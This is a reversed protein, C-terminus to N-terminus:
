ETSSPPIDNPETAKIHFGYATRAGTVLDITVLQDVDIPMKEHPGRHGTEPRTGLLVITGEGPMVANLRQIPLTTTWAPKGNPGTVRTLMLHGEDGLRDLHLVLVSDPKFLLIPLGNYVRRDSLLGAHLFEPSEPLPKFDAYTPRPGFFTQRSGLKASWVRTRPHNAPDIGGIAGGAKFPAAEAEALLGLWSTKTHLGREQFMSTGVGGSLRAPVALGPKAGTQSGTDPAAKLTPGDLRWNRGDAATFGLGTADFRYYREEKPMLTRLAPNAAEIRAQDAVDSGDRTSVAALGSDRVLWLVGNDAGLLTRGMNVGSRTRELRRRWVPKGTRADFAWLDVLLDTYVPSNLSGRVGRWPRFTKWQSTLLFVRDGQASAARVPPGEVSAKSAIPVNTLLWIITAAIAAVPGVITAILLAIKRWGSQSETTVIPDNM